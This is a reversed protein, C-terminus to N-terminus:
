PQYSVFPQSADFSAQGGKILRQLQQLSHIKSQFIICNCIDAVMALKVPTISRVVGQGTVRSPIRWLLKM